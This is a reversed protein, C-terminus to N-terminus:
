RDEPEPLYQPEDKNPSASRYAHIARATARRERRLYEGIAASGGRDFLKHASYVPMATFGRQFKHEGQAGAEFIAIKERIAYEILSYFCLEFHLYPYHGSAGWYRGFLRDDSRFAISGAVERDNESAIVLVLNERMRRLLAHFTERNLYPSGWKRAYTAAYFVYIADIHRPLIADGALTEIRLGLEACKRRERRIEKRRHARLVSLYDDFSSFNRNLWHYQHTLRPMYGFDALDKQEDRTMCLMHIGSADLDHATQDLAHVLTALTENDAADALLLRRGSAPTFPAAVTIKPYYPLRAEAYANAWAWDFIYEGYSDSREFAAVAGLYADGQNAVVFRPQWPLNPGICGTEELALLFEHRMFPNGPEVLANWKEADIAAISTFVQSTM